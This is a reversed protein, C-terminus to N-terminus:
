MPEADRLRRLALLHQPVPSDPQDAQLRRMATARDMLYWLWLLPRSSPPAGTKGAMTWRTLMTERRALLKSLLLRARARLPVQALNAALKAETSFRMNQFLLATATAEPLAAPIGIADSLAVRQPTDPPLLSLALAVGTAIGFRASLNALTEPDITPGQLLHILDTVFLPGNNLEHDYLAHVVLHLFMMTPGPCPLDQAGVRFSGTDAWIADTFAAAAPGSLPGAENTLKDHLEVPIVQSPSWIPTCHKQAPDFDGEKHACLPLPGGQAILLDFARPLDDPHVLIDIDRVPRLAPAPYRGIALPIGKLFLHPIGNRSLTRHILSCERSISLYRLMWNRRATGAPLLDEAGTPATARAPETGGSLAFDLYPLFRHQGARRLLEARDDGSLRNLTAADLSQPARAATMLLANIADDAAGGRTLETKVAGGM